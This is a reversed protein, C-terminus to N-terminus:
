SCQVVFGQDGAGQCNNRVSGGRGGADALDHALAYPALSFYEEAVADVELRWGLLALAQAEHSQAGQFLVHVRDPLVGHPPHALHQAILLHLGEAVDLLLSAGVSEALPTVRRGFAEGQYSFALEAGEAALAKACGWAISHDNAVGMVLGRKGKMMDAM